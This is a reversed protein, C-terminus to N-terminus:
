HVMSNMYENHLFQRMAKQNNIDRYLKGLSNESIRPNPQPKEFFDPWQELM